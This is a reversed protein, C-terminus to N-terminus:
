LPSGIEKLDGDAIFNAVEIFARERAHDRDQDVLRMLASTALSRAPRSLYERRAYEIIYKRVEWRQAQTLTTM